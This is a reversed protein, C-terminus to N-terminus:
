TYAHAGVRRVRFYKHWVRAHGVGAGRRVEDIGRTRARRHARVDNCMVPLIQERPLVQQAVLDYKVHRKEEEKDPEEVVLDLDAVAEAEM